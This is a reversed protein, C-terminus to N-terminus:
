IHHRSSTEARVSRALDATTRGQSFRRSAKKPWGCSVVICASLWEQSTHAATTSIHRSDHGRRSERKGERLGEMHSRRSSPDINPVGIRQMLFRQVDLASDPEARLGVAARVRELRV